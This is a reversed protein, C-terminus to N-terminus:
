NQAYALGDPQAGTAIEGIVSWLATDIVQVKGAGECSVFLRKGDPSFVIGTPTMATAIRKIVEGTSADFISVENMGPDSLAVRSGDPSFKLRNALRATIPISRVVASTKPDIVSIRAPEDRRAVGAVWLASGDPALDIGEPARAVAIQKLGVYQPTHRLDLVSVSNSVINATYIKKEDRTVVLMHTMDQGTGGVWDILNAGADYRAVALSGEVTLYFRSGASQIGHPRSLGPLVFRRLERKAAVDVVTLTTGPTEETGYNSVVAIKGDGSVAVEHPTDGTRVKATVKMAVPDVLALTADGKNVVFLTDASAHFAVLLLALLVRKM